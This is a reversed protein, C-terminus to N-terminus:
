YRIRTRVSIQEAVIRAKLETAVRDSPDLVLAKNFWRIADRFSQDVAAMQGLSDYVVILLRTAAQTELRATERMEPTRARTQLDTLAARSAELRAVSAEWAKEARGTVGKGEHDLGEKFLKRAEEVAKLAATLRRSDVAAEDKAKQDKANQQIAALRQQREENEKRITEALAKLEQKAQGATEGAPYKELLLSWARLADEHKGEKALAAARLAMAKADAARVEEMAQELAGARSPDIQVVRAYAKLSERYLGGKRCFEALHLWGAADDPALRRRLLLYASDPRLDALPLTVESGQMRLTVDQRTVRLIVGDRSTNDRLWIRESQPQQQAAAPLAAALVLCGLLARLCYGSM